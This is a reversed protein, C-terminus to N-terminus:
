LREVVTATAMGRAVCMVQLGLTGGVRELTRLLKTMLVAGTAGLPHGHAIAGGTPNVRDLDPELERAWALVVSAFAENIEVVDLDELTVGARRLAVRTAPVVADLQLTPDGGVTVRARFRAAPSLGDALAAARDAVLVAAAGDSIQSANAATIVGGERFVPRLQAMRAPDPELRIGEDGTLTVVGGERDLGDIPILEARTWGARAAAAARRHSEVALADLEPRTLGYREALREASEGQAVMEYRSTLDPNLVALRSAATASGDADAFMPVRTMSEVGGAIAYTVDGAAVARAAAHIADQGSGCARNITAAPVSSPLRSLLAGLRGVNGGQEGFQTVCGCLVDDVRSPDLGTRDLVGDIVRAFLADPRTARLGGGARGIPTRVAEVLVPENVTV